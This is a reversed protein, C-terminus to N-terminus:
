SSSTAAFLSRGRLPNSIFVNVGFRGSEKCFRRGATRRIAQPTSSIWRRAGTPDSLIGPLAGSVIPDPVYVVDGPRLDKAIVEAASRYNTIKRYTTVELYTMTILVVCASPVMVFGLDRGKVAIRARAFEVAHALLMALFPVMFLFTRDLM